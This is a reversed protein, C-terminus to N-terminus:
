QQPKKKGFPCVKVCVGCIRAGIGARAKFEITKDACRSFQLAEDRSEYRDDALVNKIASAPCAKTCEVCKGCRNKLPMDPVLPMDTLVTALRIRPGYQPSVILLSKGQWGIGAMRAVAKHSVNGLLNVEDTIFSAPVAEATFGRQKIWDVLSATINDLKANIERYHQAYAITPGDTIVDLIEDNLHVAVSIAVSYPKLLDDPIVKWGKKFESLDAVGVLSAGEARGMAKLECTQTMTEGEKIM